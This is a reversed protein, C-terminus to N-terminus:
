KKNVAWVILGIILSFVLVGGGVLAVVMGTSMGEQEDREDTAPPPPTPGPTPTNQACNTFACIINNILGGAGEGVQGWNITEWWNAAGQPDTSSLLPIPRVKAVTEGVAQQADPGLNAFMVPTNTLAEFVAQYNQERVLGLLADVLEQETADQPVIAGLAAALQARSSKAVLWFFSAPEQAMAARIQKASAM